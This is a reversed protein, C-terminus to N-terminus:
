HVSVQFHRKKELDLVALHLPWNRLGTWIAERSLKAGHLFFLLVIGAEAMYGAFVAFGGRAPLVTAVTVTALLSLIFPEFVSFLRQIM